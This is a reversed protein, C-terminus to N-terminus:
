SHLDPFQYFVHYKVLIKAHTFYQFSQLPEGNEKIEPASHIHGKGLEKLEKQSAIFAKQSRKFSLSAPSIIDYLHGKNKLIRNLAYRFNKM